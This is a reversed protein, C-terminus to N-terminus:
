IEADNRLRDTSTQLNQSSYRVTLSTQVNTCLAKLIASRPL